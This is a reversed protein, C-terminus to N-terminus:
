PTADACCIAVFHGTLSAGNRDPMMCHAKASVPVRGSSRNGALFSATGVVSTEVPHHAPTGDIGSM